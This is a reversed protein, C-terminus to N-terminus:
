SWLGQTVVCALATEVPAARRKPCGSPMCSARHRGLVDLPRGCGECTAEALPLPLGLRELLLTRFEPPEIVFETATPAGSVAAGSHRGSHSRLHAQQPPGLSPPLVTRRFHHERTSSAYHQWGHNWEGPEAALHTQPWRGTGLEEWSPRQLFGEQSLLWGAARAESLGQPDSVLVDEDTLAAIMDRAVASM